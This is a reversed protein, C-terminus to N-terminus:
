YYILFHWYSDRITILYRPRTHVGRFRLLEKWDRFLFSKWLPSKLAGSRNMIVVSIQIAESLLCSAKPSFPFWVYKHFSVPSRRRSWITHWRDKSLFRWFSLLTLDWSGEFHCFSVYCLPHYPWVLLGVSRRVQPIWSWALIVILRGKPLQSHARAVSEAWFGLLWTLILVWLEIYDECSIRDCRARAGILFVKDISRIPFHQDGLESALDCGDEFLTALAKFSTLM